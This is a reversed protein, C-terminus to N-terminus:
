MELCHAPLYGYLFGTESPELNEYSDRLLETVADMMTDSVQYFDVDFAHRWSKVDKSAHTGVQYLVHYASETWLNTTSPTQSTPCQFQFCSVMEKPIMLLLCTEDENTNPQM